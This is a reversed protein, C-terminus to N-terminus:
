SALVKVKIATLLYTFSLCFDARGGGTPILTLGLLLIKQFANGQLKKDDPVAIFRLLAMGGPKLCFHMCKLAAAQDLVYHLAMSSALFDFHSAWSSQMTSIQAADAVCFSMKPERGNEIQILVCM